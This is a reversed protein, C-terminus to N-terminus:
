LTNAVKCRLSLLHRFKDVQSLNEINVLEKRNTEINLINIRGTLTKTSVIGSTIIYSYYDVGGMIEDTLWDKLDQRNGESTAFIRIDLILYNHLTNSGLERRSDPRDFVDVTICPPTGNYAQSFGKEVRIGTWGDTVLQSTIFDVISAEVNRSLRYAM